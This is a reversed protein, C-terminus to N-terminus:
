KNEIDDDTGFLRDPGASTVKPFTHAKPAYEYRLSLGWADVFRPLDYVVGGVTAKLAQQSEQPHKVAILSPTVADIITRSKPARYLFWYLAASSGFPQENNNGDRELLATANVVVTIGAAAGLDDKLHTILYPESVGDENPSLPLRDTSFPFTENFDDYYQQIATDIVALASRTLQVSSREKVYQGLRMLSSILILVVTLAMLMEVLTMGFQRRGTTM